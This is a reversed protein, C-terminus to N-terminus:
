NALEMKKALKQTYPPYQKLINKLKQSNIKKRNLTDLEVIRKGRSMLYLLDALAKEPSALYIKDKLEYDFFLNDKLRTYEFVWNIVTVQRSRKKSALTITSPVQDILNYYYLAYEFSVYSNKDFENALKLYNVKAPEFAYYGKGLSYILDKKVWNSLLTKLSGPASSYFKKLDYFNFYTKDTEELSKKFQLYNTKVSM